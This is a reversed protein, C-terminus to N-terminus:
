TYRMINWWFTAYLGLLYDTIHQIIMKCPFSHIKDACYKQESVQPPYFSMIHENNLFNINWFSLDLYCIINVYRFYWCEFGSKHISLLWELKSYTCLLVIPKRVSCISLRVYLLVIISNKTDIIKKLAESYLFTYKM